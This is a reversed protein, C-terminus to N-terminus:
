KLDRFFQKFTAYKAAGDLGPFLSLHNIGMYSLENLAELAISAPLDVAGLIKEDLNKSLYSLYGEIDVVNSHLFVGQQHILRQNGKSKPRFVWVRPYVDSMNIIDPRNGAVFNGSLYYIRVLGGDRWTGDEVKSFLSFYSAIYPSESWDLLPTPFGHHQAFGWSAGLDGSENSFRLGGVTEALDSFVPMDNDRYRELDVRGTRHFSTRLTHEISPVGRFIMEKSSAKVSTAWKKFAGWSDLRLVDISQIPSIPELILNIAHSDHSFNLIKSNASDKISFKYESNDFQKAFEEVAHIKELRESRRGVGEILGDGNVAVKCDLIYKENTNQIAIYCVGMGGLDADVNITLFGIRQNPDCFKALYQGQFPIKNM